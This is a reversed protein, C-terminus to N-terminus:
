RLANKTFSKLYWWSERQRGKKKWVFINQHVRYLKMLETRQYLLKFPTTQYNIYFLQSSIPVYRIAWIQFALTSGKIVLEWYWHTIWKASCKGNKAWRGSNMVWETNVKNRSYKQLPSKTVSRLVRVNSSKETKRLTSNSDATEEVGVNDKQQGLKSLWFQPLCLPLSWLWISNPEFRQWNNGWNVQILQNIRYFSMALM